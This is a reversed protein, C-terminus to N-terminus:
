KYPSYLLGKMCDDLILSFKQIETAFCLVCSSSRRSKLRAKLPLIASEGQYFLLRVYLSSKFIQRTKRSGQRDTGTRGIDIKSRNNESLM